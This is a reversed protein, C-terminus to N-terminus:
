KEDYKHRTRRGKKRRDTTPSSNLIINNYLSWLVLTSHTIISYGVFNLVLNQNEFNWLIQKFDLFRNNPKILRGIRDDQYHWLLIFVYKPLHFCRFPSVYSISVVRQAYWQSHKGNSYVVEWTYETLGYWRTMWPITRNHRM